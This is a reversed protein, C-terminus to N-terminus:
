GAAGAHEADQMIVLFNKLDDLGNTSGVEFFRQGIECAALQRRALLARYLDTLDSPQDNPVLELARVDLVGLGYDIHRMEPSRSHKDYAVIQGADFRVNSADLQNDNQFVTMLGLLGAAAHAAEVQAYDCRLYSDGYLVFFARGLKNLANRLAGATGLLREGDFAYEAELGFRSGDGVYDRIQGGLHGVCLVVREVGRSRLLRLQHAVFPEGNVDILSKPSDLTLPRLRTALGGALIAVPLM